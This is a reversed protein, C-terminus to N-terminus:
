GELYRIHKEYLYEYPYHYCGCVNCYRKVIRKLKIDEIKDLFEIEDM